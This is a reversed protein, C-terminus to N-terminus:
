KGIEQLSAKHSREFQVKHCFYEIVSKDINEDFKRAFYQNSNEILAIDDSTLDQPSNRESLTEGWKFFMLNNNIVDNKYPSNMILTHFFSEDPVLTNEFFQYYWKNEDLFEIMYKATEYPITFWQSGKYFSYEKPWHNTNPYMNIGRRYLSLLTRRYIRIPHATTYRKRTMKPWKIQMFGLSEKEMRRFTMFIKNKNDLLFDKFSGKVLLDQGSRLCVFDYKKKSDLMKRLLLITADVQSIDGWECNVCTNLVTVNPSKVISQKLKDDSKKDIHIYIDAQEESILQHIFGNVQNPNKHVQLLYATRLTSDM